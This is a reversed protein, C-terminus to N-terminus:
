PPKYRTGNTYQTYIYISFEKSMNISSSNRPRPMEHQQSIFLRANTYQTIHMCYVFYQYLLSNRHSVCLLKESFVDFSTKGTEMAPCLHSVCRSIHSRTSRPCAPKIPPSKQIKNPVLQPLNKIQWSSIVSNWRKSDTDDM